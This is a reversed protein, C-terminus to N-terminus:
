VVTVVMVGTGVMLVRTKGVVLVDAMDEKAEGTLVRATVVGGPELMGVRRMVSVVVMQGDTEEVATMWGLRQWDMGERMLVRLGVLDRAVEESVGKAARKDAGGKWEWAWGVSNEDAGLWGRDSM